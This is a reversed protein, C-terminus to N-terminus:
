KQIVGPLSINLFHRYIEFVLYGQQQLYAVNIFLGPTIVRVPDQPARKERSLGFFVTNSGGLAGLFYSLAFLRQSHPLSNTPTPLQSIL